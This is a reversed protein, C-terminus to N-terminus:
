GEGKINNSLSLSEFYIESNKSQLSEMLNTRKSYNNNLPNGNKFNTFISNKIKNRDNALIIKQDKLYKSFLEDSNFHKLNELQYQNRHNNQNTHNIIEGFYVYNQEFCPCINGM